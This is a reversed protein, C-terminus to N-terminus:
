CYFVPWRAVRNGDGFKSVLIHFSRLDHKTSTLPMLILLTDQVDSDFVQFSFHTKNKM